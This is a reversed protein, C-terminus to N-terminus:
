KLAVGIVGEGEAHDGEAADWVGDGPAGDESCRGDVGGATPVGQRETVGSCDRQGARGTGQSGAERGAVVGEVPDGQRFDGLGRLSKM